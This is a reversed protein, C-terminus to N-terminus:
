ENESEITLEPNYAEDQQYEEMLDMEELETDCRGILAQMKVTEPGMNRRKVQDLRILAWQRQELIEDRRKPDPVKYTCGTCAFSIPCLAYCTCDGGIVKTLAGVTKQADELQRQLEAPARVFADEISGLHTAFRELLNDTTKVVQQWMPAGYYSTVKLDKQHLLKAVSDLPVHEVQRLHTAFVHRLLHAKLVITKGEASTFVMGHCLFRMCATIAKQSLHKGSYQFLYPRSEPFQHARGTDPHFSVSPLVAGPALNYHEKLMSGVRELIKRTEPGVMYEAPKDTGKPVLRLLLRQTGEVQLTYLCDRDLSIQLLEGHRAGTTTFFDLAALGFTVATFIPEVLFLLNDTRQRAKRMFQSEGTSLEEVMLGSHCPSFPTAGSDDGEEGYGWSRLYDQKQRIEEPTGGKAYQGLVGHRLLDGFWFLADRDRSIGHDTLSEAGTFELFYHNRDPKFAYAKRRAHKVSFSSYTHAGEAHALVFSRRDWLTFHFKVRQRPEEYSFSVPLQAKGSQVLALVEHYKQRLRYIENWRVHAEGRIRAFHPTVADSELKRRKAQGEEREQDRALQERLGTPLPPFAWHQYLPRDQAPLSRLYVQLNRTAATYNRLFEHRMEFSDEVGPDNIYRAIHEAPDWETFHTLGYTQFITQFRLHLSYLRGRVTKMDLRAYCSSVGVMFALHNFWSAGVVHTNMYSLLGRDVQDWDLRPASLLVPDINKQFEQLILPAKQESTARYKPM